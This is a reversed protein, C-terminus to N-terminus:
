EHDCVVTDDNGAYSDNELLIKKHYEQDKITELIM